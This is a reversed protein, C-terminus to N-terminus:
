HFQAQVPGDAGVVAMLVILEKMAVSECVGRRWVKQPGFANSAVCADM